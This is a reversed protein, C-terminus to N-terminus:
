ASGCGSYGIRNNDAAVDLLFSGVAALNHRPDWFVRTYPTRGRFTFTVENSRGNHIISIDQLCLISHTDLVPSLPPPASPASLDSTTLRSTATPSLAALGTVDPDEVFLPADYAAPCVPAIAIGRHGSGPCAYPGELRLAQTSSLFLLEQATSATPVAFAFFLFVTLSRM